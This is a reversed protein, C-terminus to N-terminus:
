AKACLFPSRSGGSHYRYTTGGVSLAIVVGDVAVQTYAMGPQPCGLSKDPWVVAEASITSISSRDVGLRTALDTIAHDVLGQLAPEINASGAVKAEETTAEVVSTPSVALSGTAVTASTGLSQDSAASGCGSVLV